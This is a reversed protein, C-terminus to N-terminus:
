LLWNLSVRYCRASVHKTDDFFLRDSTFFQSFDPNLCSTQAFPIYTSTRLIKLKFKLNEGTTKDEFEQKRIPFSFSSADKNM